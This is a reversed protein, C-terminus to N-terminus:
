VEMSILEFMARGNPIEKCQDKYASIMERLADEIMERCEEITSGESIV